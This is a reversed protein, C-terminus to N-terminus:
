AKTGGTIACAQFPYKVVFTHAMYTVIQTSLTRTDDDIKSSIGILEVLSICDGAYILGQLQKNTGNVDVATSLPLTNCSIVKIGAIEMVKGTDIGGNTTSTYDKNVAESQVLSIYNSPPLALYLQGTVNKEQMLASAQLITEILINGKDKLSTTTALTDQNVESGDPMLQLGEVVGSTQSAKLINAGVQLEIYKAAAHGQEQAIRSLVDLHMAKEELIDVSISIFLLKDLHAVLKRVNFETDTLTDGANHVKIATQPIRGIVDFTVSIGSPITVKDITKTLVLKDLYAVLLLAQYNTRGNTGKDIGNTNAGRNLVDAVAM